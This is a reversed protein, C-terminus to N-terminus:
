QYVSLELAAHVQGVQEDTERDLVAFVATVEYTGKGLEVSLRDKQISEGPVLVPSAYIEEGGGDLLLTVQMHYGNDGPNTIMLSGESKGDTFVPRANIRFHFNESDAREQAQKLEQKLAPSGDRADGSFLFAYGDGSGMGWAVAGAALLLLLIGAWVRAPRAKKM